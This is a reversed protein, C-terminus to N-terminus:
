KERFSCDAPALGHALTRFDVSVENLEFHENGSLDNTASVQAAESNRIYVVTNTQDPVNSQIENSSKISTEQEIFKRSQRATELCAALSAQDQFTLQVTSQFQSLKASPRDVNERTRRRVRFAVDNQGTYCRLLLGWATYLYDIFTEKNRLYVARLSEVDGSELDVAIIQSTSITDGDLVPLKCFTEGNSAM